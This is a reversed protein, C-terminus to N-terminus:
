GVEREKVGIQVGHRKLERILDDQRNTRFTMPSERKFWYRVGFLTLDVREIDSYDGHWGRSLFPWPGSISLGIDTMTVSVLPMGLPVSYWPFVPFVGPVWYYLSGKFVAEVHGDVVKNM